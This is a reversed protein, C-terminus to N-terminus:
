RNGRADPSVSCRSSRPLACLRERGRRRARLTTRDGRRRTPPAPREEPLIGHGRRGRPRSRDRREQEEGGARENRDQGGQEHGGTEHRDRGDDGSTEPEEDDAGGYGEEGTAAGHPRSRALQEEAERRRRRPGDAVDDADGAAPSW